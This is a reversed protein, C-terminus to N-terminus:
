IKYKEGEKVITIKNTVKVYETPHETHIPYLMKADIEKVIQLLDEGKAHGSCHIQHKDMGFKDLWNNVRKLSIVQEENYPESASHIYVAGSKLKMDILSNFAFYGLACLYKKPDASIEAATKANFQTAFVRSDGSYDSDNYSGTKYKAKYIVINEDDYNPVDLNPDQSLYKLYYCDSLKVVLKRGTEKAVDYFTRVRDVDKFNFDAFILNKTKAILKKSEQYVLQESENTPEDTIRTGEAILAVPKAAKAAKMFEETMEGKTGHRRLDGTYVVPGQSTYIIFGYAGPVSHDVHIPHVELSGVNFKKGTRFTKITRPIKPDRYGADLPKYELVQRDFASPAREDIAKLLLETTHGMYIPIEEHLFSIYDAHDAHAHTLLVADIDPKVIKREAKKMLDDRYIGPIDPILNTSLYDGIGNSRRPQLYEEFFKERSSFGKGFDLFVKTDKDELLIKNGGIENVGGYFTLSAM